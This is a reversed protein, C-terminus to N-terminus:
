FVTEKHREESMLHHYALYVTQIHVGHLADVYRDVNLQDQLEANRVLGTILDANKKGKMSLLQQRCSQLSAFLEMSVVVERTARFTFIRWLDTAVNGSIETVRFTRYMPDAFVVPRAMNALNRVDYSSKLKTYQLPTYWVTRRHYILWVLFALYFALERASFNKLAWRIELPLVHDRQCEQWTNYNSGTVSAVPRMNSIQDSFLQYGFIKVNLPAFAVGRCWLGPEAGQFWSAISFSPCVSPRWFECDNAVHASGFVILIAIMASMVISLKATLSLPEVDHFPLVHLMSAQAAMDIEDPLDTKTVARSITTVKRALVTLETTDARLVPEIEEDSERTVTKLEEVLPNVVPKVPKSPVPPAQPVGMANPISQKFRIPKVPLPPAKLKKPPLPPPQVDTGYNFEKEEFHVRRLRIGKNLKLDRVNNFNEQLLPAEEPKVSDVKLTQLRRELQVNEDDVDPEEVFGAKSLHDALSAVKAAEVDDDDSDDGNNVAPEATVVTVADRYASFEDDNLNTGLACDRAFHGPKGCLYCVRGGGHKSTAQAKLQGERAILAHMLPIYNDPVVRRLREHEKDCQELTQLKAYVNDRKGGANAMQNIGPTRKETVPPHSKTASLSEAPGSAHSWSRGTVNIRTASGERAGRQPRRQKDAQHATVEGVVKANGRM